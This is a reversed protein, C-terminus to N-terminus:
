AVGRIAQDPAVPSQKVHRNTAQVVFHQNGSLLPTFLKDLEAMPPKLIDQYTITAGPPIVWRAVYDETFGNAAMHTGKRLEEFAPTCVPFADVPDAPDPVGMVQQAWNKKRLYAQEPKWYDDQSLKLHVPQLRHQVLALDMRWVGVLLVM